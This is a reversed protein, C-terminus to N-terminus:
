SKFSNTRSSTCVSSCGKTCHRASQMYEGSQTSISGQLFEFSYLSRVLFSRVESLYYHGRLLHMQSQQDYNSLLVDARNAAATRLPTRASAISPSSQYPMVASEADSQGLPDSESLRPKRITQLHLPLAPLTQAGLTRRRGLTKTEIPEVVKPLPPPSIEEEISSSADNDFVDDNQSPAPSPSYPLDDTNSQFGRLPEGEEDIRGQEIAVQGVIEALRPMAPTGALLVGLGVFIPEAHHNVKRRRTYAPLNFGSYPSTSPLLQDGFVIEHCKHLVRQCIVFSQSSRNTSLDSLTAQM